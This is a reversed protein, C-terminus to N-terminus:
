YLEVAKSQSSSQKLVGCVATLSDRFVGADAGHQNMRQVLTGGREISIVSKNLRGYLRHRQHQSHPTRLNADGWRVRSRM